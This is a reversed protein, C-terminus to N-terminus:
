PGLLDQVSLRLSPLAEVTLSEGRQRSTQDTFADGQPRRNVEVHGGAIDIIWVEGIGAQAYLPLKVGRDYRLTSEAVEVLLLVDAPTPHSGRYFDNRARLIMFDPVPETADDLRLPDQVSLVFDAGAFPSLLAILAKVVGAHHSGIPPMEVIEGEILEVRNAEGLIGAEAMRYYDKVSFLHRQVEIATDMLRSKVPRLRPPM